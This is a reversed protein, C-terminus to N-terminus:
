YRSPHGGPFLWHQIYTKKGVLLPLHGKQNLKVHQIYNIHNHATCDPRVTSVDTHGRRCTIDCLMDLGCRMHLM